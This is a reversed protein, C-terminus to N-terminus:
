QILRQPYGGADGAPKGKETEPLVELEYSSDHICKGTSEEVLAAEVSIPEREEVQPFDFELYGAFYPESAPIKVKHKGSYLTHKGQRVQYYLKYGNMEEPVDNCIFVAM